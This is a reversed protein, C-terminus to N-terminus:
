IDQSRDPESSLLLGKRDDDFIKQAWMYQGAWRLTSDLQRLEAMVYDRTSGTCIFDDVFLYRLNYGTNEIYGEVTHEAHSSDKDAEKRVVLFPVDLLYAVTPVVLLGSLGSCVLYDFHKRVPALAREAQVIVTEPHAFFDYIYSSGTHM